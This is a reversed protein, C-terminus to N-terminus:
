KVLKKYIWGEVGNPLKINYWSDTEGLVILKDGKKAKTIVKNRSSAGTRVNVFSATIQVVKHAPLSSEVTPELRQEVPPPSSRSIDPEIHINPSSSAEHQSAAKAKKLNESAKTYFTPALDIAQEFSRIAQDHKGQYLYICGLNNHAQPESGGRRFAELGKRYIGMQSLILGLNNHIKRHSARTRLAERFAAIAKEYNGALSYSVGVNNYLLGEDPKLAIAAQYQHIAAEYRKRYDHIIGLFSHAEWLKPDATLAHQFQKEADGFRGVNFLAQGTGEHALAHDPRKKLVEQFAEIAEENMGKTLFLLGKKYLIRINNPSLILGKEYQIFARELNGQQFYADGLREHERDTVKPLKRPTPVEVSNRAIQKKLLKEYDNGRLRLSGMGTNRSACGWVSIVTIWVAAFVCPFFKNKKLNM